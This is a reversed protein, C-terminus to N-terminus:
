LLRACMSRNSCRRLSACMRSNKTKQSPTKTWSTLLTNCRWRDVIVQEPMTKFPQWFLAQDRLQATGCNSRDSRSLVTTNDGAFLASAESGALSYASASRGHQVDQPAGPALNFFGFTRPFTHCEM